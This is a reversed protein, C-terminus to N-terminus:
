LLLRHGFHNVSRPLYTRAIHLEQPPVKQSLFLSFKYGFLIVEYGDCEPTNKPSTCFSYEILLVLGISTEGVACGGGQIRRVCGTSAQECLQCNVPNVFSWLIESAEQVFSQADPRRQQKQLEAVRM